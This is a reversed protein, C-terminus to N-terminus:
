INFYIKFKYYIHNKSIFLIKNFILKNINKLTSLFFIINNEFYNLFYMNNNIIFIIIIININKLYYYFLIYKFNLILIQHSVM